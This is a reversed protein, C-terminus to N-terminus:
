IMQSPEIFASFKFSFSKLQVAFLIKLPIMFIKLIIIGTLPGPMKDQEHERYTYVEMEITWAM